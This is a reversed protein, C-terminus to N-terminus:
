LIIWLVWLRYLVWSVSAFWHIELIKVRRWHELFMIGVVLGFWALNVLGNVDIFKNVVVGPILLLAGMISVSMMNGLYHLVRDKRLVGVVAAQFVIQGACIALERSITGVPVLTGVFASYVNLVAATFLCGMIIFAWRYKYNYDPVCSTKAEFVKGPIIVKRNYSIFSYLINTVHVFARLRFLPKFIPFSHGIIEFLSQTGYLVRGDEKNVLAIENCARKRDILQEIKPDLGSFPKRGCEDLMGSKVFGGTYLDCLPCEDDYIIVHKTLTKM